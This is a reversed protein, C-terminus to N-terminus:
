FYFCLTKSLSYLTFRSCFATWSTILRMLNVLTRHIILNSFKTSHYIFWHFWLNSCLFISQFISSINTDPVCLYNQMRKKKKPFCLTWYKKEKLQTCTEHVKLTIRHLWVVVKRLKRAFFTEKLIFIPLLECYLCHKLSYSFSCILFIKQM